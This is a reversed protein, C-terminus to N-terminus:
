SAAVERLNGEYKDCISRWQAALDAGDIQARVLADMFWSTEIFGPFVLTMLVGGVSVRVECDDEWEACFNRDEVRVKQSDGPRKLAIEYYVDPKKERKLIVNSGTPREAKGSARTPKDRPREFWARADERTRVHAPLSQIIRLGYRVNPAKGGGASRAAEKAVEILVTWDEIGKRVLEGFLQEFSLPALWRELDGATCVEEYERYERSRRARQVASLDASEQPQVPEEARPEEAPTEGRTPVTAPASATEPPLDASGDPQGSPSTPPEPDPSDESDPPAPYQSYKPLYDINQWDLWRRFAYYPNRDVVYVTLEFLSGAMLDVLERLMTSVQDDTVGPLGDFAAVRLMSPRAVGRGHRDARAVMALLLLRHLPGLTCFATDEFLAVPIQNQWPKQPRGRTAM